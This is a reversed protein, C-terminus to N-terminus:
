NSNGKFELLDSEGVVKFRLVEFAQDLDSARRLSQENLSLKGAFDHQFAHSAQLFEVLRENPIQRFEKGEVFLRHAIRAQDNGIVRLYVQFREDAFIGQKFHGDVRYM